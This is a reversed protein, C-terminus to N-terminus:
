YPAPCTLSSQIQAVLNPDRPQNACRANYENVKGNYHATTGSLDNAVPGTSRRFMADREALLQRFRAVADPNNVDMRSRENELQADLRALEARVQEHTHQKTSMNAGLVGIDRNLCLCTAIESAQPAVPAAPAMTPPPPPYYPTQARAVPSMGVAALGAWLAMRWLISPM